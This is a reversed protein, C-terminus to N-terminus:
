TNEHHKRKMAGRLWFQTGEEWREGERALHLWELGWHRSFTQEWRWVHFRRPHGQYRYLNQIERLYASGRYVLAKDVLRETYRCAIHAVHGDWRYAALLAEEDWRKWECRSRLRNMLTATIAMHDAVDTERDTIWDSRWRIVTRMMRDEVGHLRELNKQKRASKM